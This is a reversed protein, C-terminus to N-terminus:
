VQAISDYIETAIRGAYDGTSVYPFFGPCFPGTRSNKPPGTRLTSFPGTGSTPQCGDDLQRELNRLKNVAADREQPRAVEARRGGGTRAEGEAFRGPIGGRPFSM